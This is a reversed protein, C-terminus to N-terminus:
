AWISGADYGSGRFFRPEVSVTSGQGRNSMELFHEVLGRYFGVCAPEFGTHYLIIHLPAKATAEALQRRTERHCFADAEALAWARSVERNRFWCFDIEVDMSLHRMSLLAVRIVRGVASAGPRPLCCVPFPEAESGDSYAVRLRYPENFGNQSYVFEHLCETIVDHPAQNGLCVPAGTEICHKIESRLRLRFRNTSAGTAAAVADAFAVQVVPVRAQRSWPAFMGSNSGHMGHLQLEVFGAGRNAAVDLFSKRFVVSAHDSLSQQRAWQDFAHRHTDVQDPTFFSRGFRECAPNILALWVIELYNPEADVLSCASAQLASDLQSLDDSWYPRSLRFAEEELRRCIQVYRASETALGIEKDLRRESNLAEAALSGLRGPSFDAWYPSPIAAFYFVALSM